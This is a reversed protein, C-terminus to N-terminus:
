YGGFRSVSTTKFFRQLLERIEQHDDVILLHKNDM